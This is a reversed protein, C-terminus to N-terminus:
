SGLLSSRQFHFDLHKRPFNLSYVTNIQCMRLDYCYPQTQIIISTVKVAMKTKSKIINHLGWGCTDSHRNYQKWCPLLPICGFWSDVICFFLFLFTNQKSFLYLRFFLQRLKKFHVLVQFIDIIWLWIFCKTRFHIYISIIQVFQVYFCNSQLSIWFLVSWKNVFLVWLNKWTQTDNTIM